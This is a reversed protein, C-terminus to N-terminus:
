DMEVLTLSINDPGGAALALELLRDALVDIEADRNKQILAELENDPFLKSLGDSCLLFADKNFIQIASVDPGYKQAIGMVKSLINAYPSNEVDEASIRGMELVEQAITHDTTLRELRNERFRYLRSDGIHCIAAHGASLWLATATTGAAEGPSGTQGALALVEQHAADFAAKLIEQSLSPDRPADPNQSLAERVERNIVSVALQSAEAGFRHGGMGDAVVFLGIDPEALTADQNENRVKGTHSRAAYKM